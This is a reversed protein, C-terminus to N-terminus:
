KPASLFYRTQCPTNAGCQLGPLQEVHPPNVLKVFVVDLAQHDKDIPFASWGVVVGEAGKTVYCETAINYNIMVPLGYCLSLKGPAHDTTEPPIKWM